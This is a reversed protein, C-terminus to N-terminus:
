RATGLPGIPLKAKKNLLSFVGKPSNSELVVLAQIAELFPNKFTITTSTPRNVQAIVSIEKPEAPLIGRGQLNYVWQGVTPNEITLQAEEIMELSSPAYEIAM